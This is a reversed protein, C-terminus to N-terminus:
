HVKGLTFKLLRGPRLHKAMQQLFSAPLQGLVVPPEDETAVTGDMRYTLTLHQEETAKGEQDTDLLYRHILYM